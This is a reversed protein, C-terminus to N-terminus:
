FQLQLPSCTNSFRTGKAIANLYPANAPNTPDTVTPDLATGDIGSILAPNTVNGIFANILDLKAGSTPPTGNVTNIRYQASVTSFYTYSGNVANSTSSDFGDVQIWHWKDNPGPENERVLFGIALAGKAYAADMATISASNSSTQVVTFTSYNAPDGGAAAPVMSGGFANTCPANLWLANALVQAGAGINREIVVMPSSPLGLYSWDSYNGTMIAALQTRSLSTLPVNNTAMVGFLEDFTSQSNINNLETPSLATQGAPLNLDTFLTPEVDSLGLDPIASITGTCAYTPNPYM